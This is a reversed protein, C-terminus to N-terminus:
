PLRLLLERIPHPQLNEADLDHLRIWEPAYRNDESQSFAEPGGVVMPGPDVNVLFYHAV